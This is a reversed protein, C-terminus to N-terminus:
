KKPNWHANAIRWKSAQRVWTETFVSTWNGDAVSVSIRGTLIATDGIIQIKHFEKSDSAYGPMPKLAGARPKTKSWIEDEGRASLLVLNPIELVDLTKGDGKYYSTTWAKSIERLQTETENSQGFAAASGIVLGICLELM